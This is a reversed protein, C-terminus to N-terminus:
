ITEEMRKALMSTDLVLEGRCWMKWRKTATLDLLWSHYLAEHHKSAKMNTLGERTVLDLAINELEEITLPKGWDSCNM